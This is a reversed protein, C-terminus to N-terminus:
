QAAVIVDDFFVKGWDPGEHITLYIDMKGDKGATVDRVIFRYWEGKTDGLRLRVIKGNDRYWIHMLDAGGTSKVAAALTYKKGPTLNKVEMIM